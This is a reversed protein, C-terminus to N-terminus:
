TGPVVAAARSRRRPLHLPLWNTASGFGSFVANGSGLVVLVLFVVAGAIPIWQLLTLLITGALTAPLVGRVRALRSGILYSIGTCGAAVVIGQVALVSPALYGEWARINAGVSLLAIVVAAVSLGTLLTAGLRERLTDALIELRRRRLALAATLALALYALLSVLAGRWLWQRQGPVYFWPASTEEGKVRAGPEKEVSGAVVVADGAINAGRALRLSGGAAIADGDVTGAADISGGITIVDGKVSGRAHVSCFFCICDGATEGAEVVIDRGFQTREKEARAGLPLALLPLLLLFPGSHKTM